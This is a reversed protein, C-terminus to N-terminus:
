RVVCAVIIAWPINSVVQFLHVAFFTLPVWIEVSHFPRYRKSNTGRELYYWEARYASIPLEKEIATIVAFKGDNLDKYSNINRIWAVSVLIGAIAIAFIRGPNSQPLTSIYASAGILATNVSLFFNNASQRRQSVKDAMDVLMKYIDVVSKQEDPTWDRPEKNFLTEM